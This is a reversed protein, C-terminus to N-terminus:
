TPLDAAENASQPSCLPGWSHRMWWDSGVSDSTVQNFYSLCGPALSMLPPDSSIPAAETLFIFTTLHWIEGRNLNLIGELFQLSVFTWHKVVHVRLKEDMEASFRTIPQRFEKRPENAVDKDRLFPFALTMAISFGSLS